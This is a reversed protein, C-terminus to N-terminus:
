VNAIRITNSRTNNPTNNNNLLRLKAVIYGRKIGRFDNFDYLPNEFTEDWDRFKGNLGSM